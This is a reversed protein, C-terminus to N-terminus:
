VPEALYMERRILGEKLASIKARHRNLRVTFDDLGHLPALEDFRAEEERLVARATALFELSLDGVSMLRWGAKELLGAYDGEMEIFPPGGAIARETDSPTLDPSLLIATFVMKGGPRIVQRCAELVSLKSKLCCLVDAHHIADCAENGFPLLAGDAVVAHCSRSMGDAEARAVAIKLGSVPLDTLVADCGSLEALKLSPWGSGAGIELLREGPGLDLLKAIERVEELTAWSTAGYRCGCVAEEVDLMVPMRARRYVDEFRATDLIEQPTRAM